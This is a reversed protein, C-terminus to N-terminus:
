LAVANKARTGVHSNANSYTTIGLVNPSSAAGAHEYSRDNVVAKLCLEVDSKLSLPIQHARSLTSETFLLIIYIDTQYALNDFIWTSQICSKFYM